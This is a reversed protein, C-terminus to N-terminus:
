APLEALPHIDVRGSDAHGAIVRDRTRETFEVWHGTSDISSRWGDAADRCGEVGGTLNPRGRIV